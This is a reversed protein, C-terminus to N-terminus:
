KSGEAAFIDLNGAPKAPAAEGDPTEPFRQVTYKGDEVKVVRFDGFEPHTYKDGLTLAADCNGLLTGTDAYVTRAAPQAGATARKDKPFPWAAKPNLATKSPKAPNAPEPATAAKRSSASPEATNSSSPADPRPAGSIPTKGAAIFEHWGTWLKEFRRGTKNGNKRAWAIFAARSLDKGTATYARLDALCQDKGPLSARPTPTGPATRKAAPKAAKAGPLKIERAPKPAAAARPKTKPKAAKAPKAAKPKKAPKPKRKGAKQTEADIAELPLEIRARLENIRTAYEALKAPLEADLEAPTGIASIPERLVSKEDADDEDPKPIIIVQLREGRPTVIMQLPTHKAVPYLEQFM